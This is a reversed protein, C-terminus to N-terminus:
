QWFRLEVPGICICERFIARYSSFQMCQSRGWYMQRFGWWVIQLKGIKM